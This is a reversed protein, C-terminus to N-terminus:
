SRGDGVPCRACPPTGEICWVEKPPAATNLKRGSEAELVSQRIAASREREYRALLESKRRQLLLEIEATPTAVWAGAALRTEGIPKHYTIQQDATNGGGVFIVFSKGKLSSDEVWATDLVRNPGIKGAAPNGGRVVNVRPNGGAGV